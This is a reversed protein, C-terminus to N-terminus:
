GNSGHRPLAVENDEFIYGFCQSLSPNHRIESDFVPQCRTNQIFYKVDNKKKPLVIFRGCDVISFTELDFSKVIEAFSPSYAQIPSSTTKADDIPQTGEKGDLYQSELRENFDVDFHGYARVIGGPEYDGGFVVM